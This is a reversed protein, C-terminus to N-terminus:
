NNSFKYFDRLYSIESIELVFEYFIMEDLKDLKQLMTSDNHEKM